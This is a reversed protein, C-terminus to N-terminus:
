DNKQFVYLAPCIVDVSTYKKSTSYEHNVTKLSEIFPSIIISKNDLNQLLIIKFNYKEAIEIIYKHSNFTYRGWGKGTDGPDDLITFDKLVILGNKTLCNYAERFYDNIDVYGVSEINFIIDYSNKNKSMFEVMDDKIIDTGFRDKAIDKLKQSNVVGTTNKFGLENLYIQYYGIGCGLDLIFSHKNPIFKSLLDHTFQLDEILYFQYTNNTKFLDSIKDYYDESPLDFYDTYM